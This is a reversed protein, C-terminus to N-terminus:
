CGGKIRKMRPPHEEDDPHVTIEICDGIQFDHSDHYVSIQGGDALEVEYRMPARTSVGSNRPSLLFGLGISFGGGSSVAGYVSTDTRTGEEVDRMEVEDRTMIVGIRTIIGSDNDHANKSSCGFALLAVLLLISTRM